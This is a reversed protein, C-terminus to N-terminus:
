LALGLGRSTGTVLVVKDKLKSGDFITEIRLARANDAKKQAAFRAPQDPDSYVINGAEM